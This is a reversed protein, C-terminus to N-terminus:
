AAVQQSAEGDWWQLTSRAQVAATFAGSTPFAGRLTFFVVGPTDRPQLRLVDAELERGQSDLVQRLDFAFWRLGELQLARMFTDPEVQNAIRVLHMQVSSGDRWMVEHRQALVLLEAGALENRQVIRDDHRFHM